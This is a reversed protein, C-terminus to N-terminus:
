RTGVGFLQPLEPFHCGCPDHYKAPKFASAMAWRLETVPLVAGHQRVLRFRPTTRKTLAPPYARFKPTLM